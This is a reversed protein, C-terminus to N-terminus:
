DKLNLPKMLEQEFDTFSDEEKQKELKRAKDKPLSDILTITNKIENKKSKVKYLEDFSKKDLLHLLVEYNEQPNELLADLADHVAYRGKESTPKTVGDVIKRSITDKIKSERLVKNLDKRKEAVRKKEDAAKTVAENEKEDLYKDYQENYADVIQKSYTDVEFDEEKQKLLALAEKQTHGGNNMYHHLIIKKQTDENALDLGEFPRKMQEPSAFLEKLDGGEKLINVIKLADESLESKSIFGEELKKDKAEKQKDIVKKLQDETIDSFESLLTGEEDEESLAIRIDDLLGLEILSQTRSFINSSQEPQAEEEQQQEQGEENEESEQEQESTEQESIGEQSEEESSEEEQELEKELEPIDEIEQEITPPTDEAGIEFLADLNDLTVEGPLVENNKNDDM